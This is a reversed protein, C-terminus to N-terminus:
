KFIRRTKLYWNEIGSFRKSPDAIKKVEIGKVEKSVLYVYDSSYLFVAPTDEILIDQFLALKEARIEPGSSERIEELLKDVKKNEYVALNLGPDRKQSSHWFPFPDPLAGLVEGFLLSEYNRPKIFDQELQLISFKEINVEAGIVGWQQKLLEAVELLQPQDVTVLSFKLPLTEEPAEFCVENLKTRTTEAVLGTGNKFGWPELIEQAYKEQFRIVAQKTKPGFYGTIEGEPYIKPFKALCKQLEEVEKGQSDEVLRTKFKFAPGKKVIRERLGDQNEKFGAKELINKAKEVSFEYINLPSSFGYIEPLIPSHTVEKEIIPSSEGLNLIEKVIEKKNTAYNLAIRVEKESLIKSKDPNFFIAFYRPLSLYYKQWNEGLNTFSSLSLGKIKEHLAAKTLEEENDFFLFKIKSINPKERFYNSNPVLTLSSIKNSKNQTTKKVKYLGSGVPELNYTELPFNEPSINEWIHKPLIKLTCNELFASYPKKLEFKIGFKSIKEAEVGVWNARLPSKYDPSQITKITFIVDDATLPTGDQWSINEKLFFKYIKGQEEIEPYDQALDPIIQLNENYKMLGSFILEVLDRDVDSNAYVPNIFRPQGIIGETYIGGRAPSLETNRFYFNLLIFTLSSFALLFFILFAIKEKKTLVKFFQRWQQKSPWKFGKKKSWSSM